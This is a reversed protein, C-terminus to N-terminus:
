DLECATKTVFKALLSRQQAAKREETSMKNWEEETYAGGAVLDLEEDEIEVPAVVKKEESM